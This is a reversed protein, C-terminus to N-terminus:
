DPWFSIFLHGASTVEEIFELSRVILEFCQIRAYVPRVAPKVLDDAPQFRQKREGGVGILGQKVISKLIVGDNADQLLDGLRNAVENVLGVELGSKLSRDPFVGRLKCVQKRGCVGLRSQCQFPFLSQALFDLFATRWSRWGRGTVILRAGRRTRELRRRYASGSGDRSPTM